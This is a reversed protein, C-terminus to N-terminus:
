SSFVIRFKATKEKSEFTIITNWTQAENGLLTGSFCVAKVGKVRKSSVFITKDDNLGMKNNVTGNEPNIAIGFEVIGRKRTNKPVGFALTILHTYKGNEYYSPWNNDWGITYDFDYDGKFQHEEQLKRIQEWDGASPTVPHYIDGSGKLNTCDYTLTNGNGSELRITVSNGDVSYSFFTNDVRRGENNSTSSDIWKHHHRLVGETDSIFYYVFVDNTLEAWTDYENFEVNSGSMWKYKQLTNRLDNSNINDDDPCATFLCLAAFLLTFPVFKRSVIRKNNM